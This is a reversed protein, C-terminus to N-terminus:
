WPEKRDPAPLDHGANHYGCHLDILALIFPGCLLGIALGSLFYM